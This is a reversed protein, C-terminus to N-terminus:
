VAVEIFTLHSGTQGGMNYSRTGGVRRGLLRVQIQNNTPNAPITYEYAFDSTRYRTQGGRDLLSGGSQFVQTFTSGGDSSIEMKMQATTSTHSDNDVDGFHQYSVLIVLKNGASHVDYTVTFDTAYTSTNNATIVNPARGQIYDVKVISGAPLDGLGVAGSALADAGVANDSIGRSKTKILAM